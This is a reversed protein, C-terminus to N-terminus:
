RTYPPLLLKNLRKLVPSRKDYADFPGSSSSLSTSSSKEIANSLSAPKAQLGLQNQIFFAIFLTLRLQAVHLIHFCVALSKGIEVAGLDIRSVQRLTFAWSAQFLVLVLLSTAYMM